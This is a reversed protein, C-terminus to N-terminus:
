LSLCGLMTLKDLCCIAIVNYSTISCELLIIVAFSYVTESGCVTPVRRGLVQGKENLSEYYIVLCGYVKPVLDYSSSRIGCWRTLNKHVLGTLVPHPSSTPSGTLKWFGQPLSLTVTIKIGCLTM